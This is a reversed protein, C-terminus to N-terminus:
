AVRRGQLAARVAAELAQPNGSNDIRREV